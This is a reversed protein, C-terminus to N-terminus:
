EFFDSFRVAKTQLQNCLVIIIIYGFEVEAEFILYIIHLPLM